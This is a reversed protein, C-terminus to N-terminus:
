PLKSEVGQVYVGIHLFFDAPAVPAPTGLAAKEDNSCALLSAAAIGCVLLMSLLRM